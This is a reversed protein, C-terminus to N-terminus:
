FVAGGTANQGVFTGQPGRYVEVSRIDYFPEATIYGPFTSAGDRYLVVGVPTQTNHEGKGIGRIDFDIGQGLDNVTVNPTVFQLANVNTVGRTQLEDGSLVSATIPTTMLNEVRREGTVVVTEIASGSSTATSATQAHAAGSCVLAVVSISLSLRSKMTGGKK